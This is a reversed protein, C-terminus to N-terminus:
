HESVCVFAQIIIVNMVWERERRAREKRENKVNMENTLTAAANENSKTKNQIAM